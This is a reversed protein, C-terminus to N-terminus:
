LGIEKSEKEASSMTLTIQVQQRWNGVGISQVVGTLQEGM